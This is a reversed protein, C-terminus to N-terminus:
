FFKILPIKIIQPEIQEKIERKVIKTKQIPPPEEESDTADQYIYRIKKPQTRKKKKVIIIEEESSSEEYIVKPEKKPKVQAKGKKVTQDSELIKENTSLDIIKIPPAYCDSDEDDHQNLKKKTKELNLQELIERKTKDLAEKKLKANELRKQQALEFSKKQGDSREKKKLITNDLPDDLDEEM